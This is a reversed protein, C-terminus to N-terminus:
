PDLALFRVVVGVAHDRLEDLLEGWRPGCFQPGGSLGHLPGGIGLGRDFSDCVVPRIVLEIVNQQIKM